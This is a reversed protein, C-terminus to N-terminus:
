GGQSRYEEIDAEVEDEAFENAQEIVSDELFSDPPIEEELAGVDLLLDESIQWREASLEGFDDGQLETLELVTDLFPRSFSPDQTEDPVRVEGVEHVFDKDLVGVSTAKAWARSFGEAMRRGDESEFLSRQMVLSNSPLTVFEDPTIDRLAIGSVEIGVFDQIAASYADIRGDELARASQPGGDGVVLLEVDEDAVLGADELAAEVLPLEGGGRSTIGLVGGDLDAVTTIDSDEPTKISFVNSQYFDYFVVWDEGSELSELVEPPNIAAIDVNNAALQLTQETQGSPILEVNLGEDAFYGLEDAIFYPYFALSEPIPQIFRVDLEGSGGDESGDSTEEDGCAAVGVFAAALIALLLTKKIRM